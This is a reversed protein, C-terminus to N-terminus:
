LQNDLLNSLKAISLPKQLFDTVLPHSKCWNIIAPDRTSSVCFVQVHQLTAAQVDKLHTLFSRGDMIPMQLDLLIVIRNKIAEGDLSNLYTLALSADLFTTIDTSIGKHRILKEHYLLDIKNDDILIFHTKKESKM